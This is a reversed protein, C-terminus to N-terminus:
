VQQRAFSAFSVFYPPIISRNPRQERRISRSVGKQFHRCPQMGERAERRRTFGEASMHLRAVGAPNCRGAGSGAWLHEFTLNRVVDGGPMARFAPDAYRVAPAAGLATQLQSDDTSVSM